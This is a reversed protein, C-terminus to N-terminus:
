CAFDEGGHRRVVDLAYSIAEAVELWDKYLPGGMAMRRCKMEEAALLEIVREPTM